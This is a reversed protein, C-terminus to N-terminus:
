RAYGFGEEEKDEIAEIATRVAWKTCDEVTMDPNIAWVRLNSRSPFENDEYAHRVIEEILDEEDTQPGDTISGWGLKAFLHHAVYFTENPYPKM